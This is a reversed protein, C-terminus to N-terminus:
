QGDDGSEEDESEESETEPELEPEEVEDTEAGAVIENVTQRLDLETIDEATPQEDEDDTEAVAVETKKPSAATEAQRQKKWAPETIKVLRGSDDVSFGAQHGRTIGAEIDSQQQAYELAAFAVDYAESVSEGQNKYLSRAYRQAAATEAFTPLHSLQKIKTPKLLAETM